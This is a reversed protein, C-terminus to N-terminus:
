LAKLLKLTMQGDFPRMDGARVPVDDYCAGAGDPVYGMKIYLRQAAGFSPDLGVAIGAAAKGSKRIAEECSEVLRRGVGCRRESPLVNLDQIEPIDLRKFPAYGPSWILQVYGAVMGGKDAVLIIRKGKHQEDLCREFYGNEHQAGSAEALRLLGGIDSTEAQRIVISEM